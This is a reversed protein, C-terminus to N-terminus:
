YMEIYISYEAPLIFVLRIRVMGTWLVHINDDGGPAMTIFM